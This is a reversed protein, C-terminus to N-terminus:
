LEEISIGRVVAECEDCIWESEVWEDIFADKCVVCLVNTFALANSM